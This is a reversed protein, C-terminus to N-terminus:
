VPFVAWSSPSISLAARPAWLAARPAPSRDLSNGDRLEVPLAPAALIEQSLGSFPWNWLLVAKPAAEQLAQFHGLSCGHGPPNFDGLHAALPWLFWLFCKWPRGQAKPLCGVALLVWCPSPLPSPAVPAEIGHSAVGFGKKNELELALIWEPIWCHGWLGLLAEVSGPIFKPYGFICLFCLDM